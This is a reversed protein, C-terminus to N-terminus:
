PMEVFSVDDVYSASSGANTATFQVMYETGSRPLFTASGSSPQEVGAETMLVTTYKKTQLSASLKLEVWTSQPVTIGTAIWRSTTADLLQLEGSPLINAGFQPIWSRDFTTVSIGLASDAAERRIWARLQYDNDPKIGPTIYGSLPQRDGTLKASQPPSHFVNTTIVPGQMDFRGWRGVKTSADGAMGATDPRFASTDDFGTNMRIVELTKLSAPRLRMIQANEKETVESFSNWARKVYLNKWAQEALRIDVTQDMFERLVAEGQPGMALLADGVPRYGWDADARQCGDGFKAYLAKLAALAKPRLETLENPISSLVSALSTAIRNSVVPDAHDLAAIMGEVARPSRLRSMGEAALFRAQTSSDSLSKELPGIDDEGVMTAIAWLAAVRAAPVDSKSIVELLIPKTSPDFHQLGRGVIEIMPHVPDKEVAALLKRASEPGHNEILGNGAAFRVTRESDELGKEIVPVAAPDKLKGLARLAMRRVILNRDEALPAVDALTAKMGRSIQALVKMRLIARESKLSQLPQDPIICQDFYAEEESFAVVAPMGQKMFPMWRPDNPSSTTVATTTSTNRTLWLVDQLAKVQRNRDCNGFMMFDDVIGDRVWTELDLSLPGATWMLEPATSWPQPLHIDFPQLCISLKQNNKSLGEKLQRLYATLYEGQLAYWDQRSASRTWDETRVDIGHREKFDKVAADTYGFEDNFRMSHNENYTLFSLGDYGYMEMYKLHLAVLATRAEPYAFSINGGQKLVGYRDTPVWEPHENRLKSECNYPYDAFAPTDATAGWDALTGVAWIKMGRKRAAEVVRREPDVERHIQKVWQMFTYYRPSEPRQEITDIYTLDQMGRWYVHKIGLDNLFDFSAEIAAASDFPLSEGLWYNDGTSILVGLPKQVAQHDDNVATQTAPDGMASSMLGILACAILNGM